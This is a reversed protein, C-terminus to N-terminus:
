IGSKLKVIYNAYILEAVIEQIEVSQEGLPKDIFIMREKGKGADNEIGLKRLNRALEERRPISVYHGASPYHEKNLTKVTLQVYHENLAEMQITEKKSNNFIEYEDEKVETYIWM